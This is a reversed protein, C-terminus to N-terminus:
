KLWNKNERLFKTSFSARIQGHYVHMPYEVEKRYDFRKINFTFLDQFTKQLEEDKHNFVKKFKRNSFKILLLLKLCHNDQIGDYWFFRALSSLVKKVM